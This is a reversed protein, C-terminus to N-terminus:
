LIVVVVVVFFFFVSLLFTAFWKSASNADSGFLKLALTCADKPYYYGFAQHMEESLQARHLARRLRRAKSDVFV